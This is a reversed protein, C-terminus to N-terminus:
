CKTIHQKLDAMQLYRVNLNLQKLHLRAHLGAIIKNFSDSGDVLFVVDTVTQSIDVEINPGSKKTSEISQALTKTKVGSYKGSNEYFEFDRINTLSNDQVM